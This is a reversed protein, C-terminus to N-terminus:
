AVAESNKRERAREVLENCLARFAPPDLRMGSPTVYRFGPELLVFEKKLEHLTYVRPLVQERVALRWGRVSAHACCSNTRRSEWDEAAQRRHFPLGLVDEKTLYTPANLGAEIAAGQKALAAALKLKISQM